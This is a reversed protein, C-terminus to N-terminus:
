GAVTVPESVESVPQFGTLTMGTLFSEPLSLLRAAIQVPGRQVTVLALFEGRRDGPATVWCEVVTGREDRSYVDGLRVRSCGPIVEVITAVSVDADTDAATDTPDYTYPQLVMPESYDADRPDYRFTKGM